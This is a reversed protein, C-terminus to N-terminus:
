SWCFIDFVAFIVIVFYFRTEIFKEATEIFHFPTKNNKKAENNNKKASKKMKKHLFFFFVIKAVQNKIFIKFIFLMAKCKTANNAHM